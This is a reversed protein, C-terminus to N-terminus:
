LQGDDYRCQKACQAQRQVGRVEHLGRQDLSLEVGTPRMLNPNVELVEAERDRAVEGITWALGLPECRHGAVFGRPNQQMGVLQSEGMRAGPLRHM